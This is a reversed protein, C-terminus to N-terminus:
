VLLLKGDEYNLTAHDFLLLSNTPNQYSQFNNNHFPISQTGIIKLAAHLTQVNKTGFGNHTIYSRIGSQNPGNELFHTVAHDALAFLKYLISAQKKRLLQDNMTFDEIQFGVSAGIGSGGSRGCSGGTSLLTGRSGGGMSPVPDAAAAAGATDSTLLLQQLYDNSTPLDCMNVNSSAVDYHTSRYDYPSSTSSGGGGGGGNASKRDIKLPIKKLIDDVTNSSIDSQDFKSDFTLTTTSESTMYDYLMTDSVYLAASNDLRYVLIAPEAMLLPGHVICRYVNNMLVKNYSLISCAMHALIHTHTNFNCVDLGEERIYGIADTMCSNIYEILYDVPNSSTNIQYKKYGVYFCMPAHRARGGNPPKMFDAPVDELPHGDNVEVYSNLDKLQYRKRKRSVAVAM